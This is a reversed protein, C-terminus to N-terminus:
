DCDLRFASPLLRGLTVSEIEDREDVLLIQTEATAFEAIVQRCGGCPTCREIKERGGAIAIMTIANGGNAIMVNVAAAEACSGLPYAANEVNCGTHINGNEDLIAAGVKYNSYPAYANERVAKAQEVVERVNEKNM